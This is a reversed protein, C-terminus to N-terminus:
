AILFYPGDDPALRIETQGPEIQPGDRTVECIVVIIRNACSVHSLAGHRNVVIEIDGPVLELAKRLGAVTMPAAPAAITQGAADAVAADFQAKAAMYAPDSEDM